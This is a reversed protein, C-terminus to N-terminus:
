RVVRDVLYLPRGLMQEHVRAMYRGLIGICILQVAGIFLVMVLVWLTASATIAGALTLTVLVLAGIGTVVATATGAFTAVSLPVDSFSTFAEVALRFLQPYSAGRGVDRGARRYEVPVQEYGVWAVLGRMFRRREPMGRVADVVRRSMLRFDGAQGQYPVRALRQMMAYFSTAMTRKLLSEDRGIRRAYVVDAGARAMELMEPLLEPPDQLDAHLVAVFQGRAHDMGAAMAIEMGFNRSLQVLMSPEGAAIWGEIIRASEDVSGDDVLVLEHPVAGLAAHIRSRLQELSGAENFVPVVVSVLPQDTM